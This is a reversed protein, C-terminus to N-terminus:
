ARTTAGSAGGSAGLLKRQRQLTKADEIIEAVTKRLWPTATANAADAPAATAPHGGAPVGAAASSGAGTRAVLAPAGFMARPGHAAGPGRQLVAAIRLGVEGTSVTQLGLRSLGAGGSVGAAEDAARQVAAAASGAGAAAAAGAAAGYGQWDSPVRAYSVDHLRTSGGLFFDQEAQARTGRPVWCPARVDRCGATLPLDVYAYGEARHRDWGDRSFVSLFLVPAAPPLAGGGGSGGECLLHV